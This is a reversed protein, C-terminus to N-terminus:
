GAKRDRRRSKMAREDADPYWVLQEGSSVLCCSSVLGRKVWTKMTEIPTGTAGAVQRVTGWGVTSLMQRGDEVKARCALLYRHWDYTTRCRGCTWHDELGRDTLQRVLADAGCTFCEAEAKEPRDARGTARELRRHLLQLDKVYAVFGGHARAAWRTHVELYGAALQVQRAAPTRGTQDFLPVVVPEARSDAWTNAWWALEYAVSKPDGDKATKGNDELGESGKGLLVLVDGGPLPRGDSAAPASTDLRQGPVRALHAPLEAYMSTVGALLHRAHTLCDECTRHDELRLSRTCVQCLPHDADAAHEARQLRPALDDTLDPKWDCRACRIPTM